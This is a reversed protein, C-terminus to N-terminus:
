TVLIVLQTGLQMPNENEQEQPKLRSRPNQRERILKPPNLFILLSFSVSWAVSAACM